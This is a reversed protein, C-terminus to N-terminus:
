VSQAVQGVHLHFPMLLYHLPWNFEKTLLHPQRFFVFFNAMRLFLIKRKDCKDGEMVRLLLKKIQVNQLSTNEYAFGV